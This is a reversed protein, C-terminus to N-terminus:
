CGGSKTKGSHGAEKTQSLFYWLIYDINYAPAEVNVLTNSQPGYGAFPFSVLLFSRSMVHTM